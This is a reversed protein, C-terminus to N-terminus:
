VGTMLDLESSYEEAGVSHPFWNLVFPTHQNLAIGLEGLPEYHRMTSPAGIMYQVILDEAEQLKGELVKQQILPLKDATARNNRDIFDGYWLSDENLQIRDIGTHGYVMAGLAGNGLPMADNWREAPSDYRLIFDSM